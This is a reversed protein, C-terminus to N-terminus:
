GKSGHSMHRFSSLACGCEWCSLLAVLGDCSCGSVWLSTGAFRLVFQVLAGFLVFRPPLSLLWPCLSFGFLLRVVLCSWCPGGLCLSSRLLVLFVVLRVLLLVVCLVIGLAWCPLVDLAGCSWWRPLPCCLGYKHLAYHAQGYYLYISNRIMSCPYPAHVCFLFLLPLTTFHFLVLAGTVDDVSLCVLVFFFM